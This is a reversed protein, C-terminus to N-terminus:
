SQWHHSHRTPFWFFYSCTLCLTNQTNLVTQILDFDPCLGAMNLYFEVEWCIVTRHAVKQLRFIYFMKRCGGHLDGWYLVNGKMETPKRFARSLVLKGIRIIVPLRLFNSKSLCYRWCWLVCVARGGVEAGLCCVKGCQARSGCWGWLKIWM